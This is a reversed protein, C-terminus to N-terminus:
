IIYVSYSASLFFTYNYGLKRNLNSNNNEQVSSNKVESCRVIRKWGSIVMGESRGAREGYESNGGGRFPDEKAYLLQNAPVHGNGDWGNRWGSMEVKEVPKGCM